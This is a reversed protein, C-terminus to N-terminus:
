DEVIRLAENPCRAVAAEAAERRDPGPREILQVLSGDDQIEFLDPAEAECLGLGNCRTRDVVLRMQKGM